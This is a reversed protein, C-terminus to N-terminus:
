EFNRRQVDELLALTESYSAIRSKIWLINVTLEDATLAKKYGKTIDSVIPYGERRMEAIIDSINRPCMGIESSLDYRSVWRETSLIDWVADMMEHARATTLNM